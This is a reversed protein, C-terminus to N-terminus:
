LERLKSCRRSWWADISTTSRTRPRQLPRPRLPDLHAGTGGRRGARAARLVARLSASTCASGSSVRRDKIGMMLAEGEVYAFSINLNGPCATSWTATSTSVGAAARHMGNICSTACRWAPAQAETAMERERSRARGRRPRRCLPTPLTGSRMGREQGGGHIMAASGCARSAGSM